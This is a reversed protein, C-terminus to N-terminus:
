NATSPELVLVHASGAVITPRGNPAAAPAFSAAPLYIRGTRPDLAATRASVETPVIGLSTLHRNRRVGLVSLTGSQGCPVIFRRRQPDFLAGDPGKGIAVLEIVRHSRADVLAAMGNACASLLLEDAQDFAIGTPGKCGTLAIPPLTVGRKLDVLEIESADEDNVALMDPAILTGLELGPRVPVTSVVRAARPDIMSVTGSRANMVILRKSAADYLAADPNEGVSISATQQGTTANILRVSGDGGSTVAVLDTGEIAVAAHGRAVRGASTAGRTNLDILTVSDGRGILLRDHDADVSLLDWRGDPMPITAVTHYTPEVPQASVATATMALAVFGAAIVQRM